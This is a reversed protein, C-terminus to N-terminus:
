THPCGSSTQLHARRVANFFNLVEASAYDRYTWPLPQFCHKKFVLTVEAYIGSGLYIRHAYNKVTSLVVNWSTLYGPDLNVTRRPRPHQKRSFKRELEEVFLKVEVLSTLPLPDRLTVFYKWLAPGM